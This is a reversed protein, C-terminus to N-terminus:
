FGAGVAPAFARRRNCLYNYTRRNNGSITNQRKKKRLYRCFYNRRYFCSNSNDANCPVDTNFTIFVASYSYFFGFWPHKGKAMYYISFPMGVAIMPAISNSIGWGLIMFDKVLSGPINEDALMGFINHQVIVVALQMMIVFTSMLVAKAIYDFNANKLTVQAVIYLLTFIATFIVGAMLSLINYDYSFLGGLMLSLGLAGMAFFGLTFRIKIKRRIIGYVASIVIFASLIIMYWLNDIIYNDRMYNSGQVILGNQLSIFYIIVLLPPIAARLNTKSVFIYVLYVTLITWFFLELALFHSCVALLGVVALMKESAFFTQLRKVIGDFSWINLQKKDLTNM